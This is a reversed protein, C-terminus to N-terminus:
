PLDNVNPDIVEKIQDATADFLIPQDIVAFGANVGGENSHSGKTRMLTGFSENIKFFSEDSQNKSDMIICSYIGIESLSMMSNLKGDKLMWAKIRPPEIREMILYQKLSEKYDKDTNPDVFKMLLDKMEDDYFNNGGGEKQPKM